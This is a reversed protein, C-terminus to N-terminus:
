FNTKDIKEAIVFAIVDDKESTISIHLRDIQAESLIQKLDDHINIYPSDDEHNLTEVIRFDFFRSHIHSAVAKYVAEKAAFREALYVAPRLRNKSQKIEEETFTYTLFFNHQEKLKKEIRNIKITDVGIGIIM